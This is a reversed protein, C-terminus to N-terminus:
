QHFVLVEHLTYAVGDVILANKRNVASIPGLKENMQRINEIISAKAPSAPHTTQSTIM